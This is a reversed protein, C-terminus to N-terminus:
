LRPDFASIPRDKRIPLKSDRTQKGNQGRKRWDYRRTPSYNHKDVSNIIHAPSIVSIARRRFPSGIECTQFHNQSTCTSRNDPFETLITY